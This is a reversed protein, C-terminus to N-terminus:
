YKMRFNLVVMATRVSLTIHVLVIFFHTSWHYKLKFIRITFHILNVLFLLIGILILPYGWYQEWFTGLIFDPEHNHAYSGAAFILTCYFINRIYAFFNGILANDTFINM